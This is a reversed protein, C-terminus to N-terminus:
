SIFRQAKLLEANLIAAGAAGRIINHGLIVFKYDLISCARVRGVVSAMGKELNVDLRPQPRDIEEKLIIPHEPASPLGLKQPVSRYSRFANMVDQLSAQRRLKINVSETHGDIVPVRTATASVRMSHPEIKGSKLKGFIKKTEREIKEEEEAIYPIVNGYADLSSVGPYGAGSLAQLTTVVVTKIEFMEDLPALALCLAMAACNSNTVIFGEDYGRRAQQVKVLEVHESNIEPLLIPVDEDMRHNKSNSVVAYGSRAFDEEISGAVAADLGSFVVRAEFGPKVDVVPMHSVHEPISTEQKWHAAECYPRGVSRESAALAVIEFWPHNALLKVFHQGVMGTAGLIGVKIKQAM